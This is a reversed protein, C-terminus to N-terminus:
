LVDPRDLVWLVVPGTSVRCLSVIGGPKGRVYVVEGPYLMDRGDTRRIEILVKAKPLQKTTM